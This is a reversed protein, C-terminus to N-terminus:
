PHNWSQPGPCQGNSIKQAYWTDTKGPKSSKLELYKKQWRKNREKTALKRAERKVQSPTYRNDATTAADAIRRVQEADVSYRSDHYEMFEILPAKNSGAVLDLTGAAKLCIM